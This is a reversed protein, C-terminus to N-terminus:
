KDDVPGLALTKVQALGAMVSPALVPNPLMAELALLRVALMGLKHLKWTSSHSVYSRRAEREYKALRWDM